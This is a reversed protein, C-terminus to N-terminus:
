LRAVLFWRLPVAELERVKVKCPKRCQHGSVLACFLLPEMGVMSHLMQEQWYQRIKIGKAAFCEKLGM